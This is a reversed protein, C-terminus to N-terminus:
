MKKDPSMPLPELLSVQQILTPSLGPHPQPLIPSELLAHGIGSDDSESNVDTNYYYVIINCEVCVAFM